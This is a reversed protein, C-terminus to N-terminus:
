SMNLGSRKKGITLGAEERGNAQQNTRERKGPGARRTAELLGGPQHHLTRQSALATSRAFGRLDECHAHGVRQGTWDFLDESRKSAIADAGGDCPVSHTLGQGTPFWWM